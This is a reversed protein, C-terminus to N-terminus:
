SRRAAPTGPTLRCALAECAHGDYDGWIERVFADDGDDWPAPVGDLREGVVHLLQDRTRVVEGPVDHPDFYLGRDELYRELDPMFYVVPRRTLMFDFSISSYDTVVVDCLGLYAHLDADTPLLTCSEPLRTAPSVNYHAKYALRAGRQRCLDALGSLVADDVLDDVRDDRWTLFLGVVQPAARLLTWTEPDTVLAPPPPDGRVLHDNRPYGVEWCHEPPVGFAPSFIRRTVLDTSSLFVDPPTEQGARAIRERLSSPRVGARETLRKLGIGHWLCVRRAGAATFRNIDSAYGSYVYSGARLCAVLGARSWRTHAELGLSRLRRVLDSSGSVWVPRVATDSRHASLHLYLYAANDAFRDLTAGFVLLRPDRPVRGVSAALLRLLPYQVLNTVAVVRHVGLKRVLTRVPRSRRLASSGM